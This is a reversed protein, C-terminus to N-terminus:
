FQMSVLFLETKRKLADKIMYRKDALLHVTAAAIEASPCKSFTTKKFVM